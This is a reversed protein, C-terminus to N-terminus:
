VRLDRLCAGRARDVQVVVRRAHERRAADGDGVVAPQDRLAGERRHQGAVLLEHGVAVVRGERDYAVDRLGRADRRDGEHPLTGVAPPAAKTISVRAELGEGAGEGVGVRVRVMGVGLGERVGEGLGVRVGVRVGLWAACPERM